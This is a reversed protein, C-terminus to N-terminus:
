LTQTQTHTRRLHQFVTHQLVQSGLVEKIDVFWLVVAGNVQVPVNVTFSSTSALSAITCDKVNLGASYLKTSSFYTKVRKDCMRMREM